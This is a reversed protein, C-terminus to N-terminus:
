KGDPEIRLSRLTLDDRVLIREGLFVPYAWTQRDSVQYEAVPEYAKGNPKVVVLRGRMTLFLLVSRANLTTAYGFGHQEDSQWLTKGSGADVCFFCGRGRTSSGFLLDGALVPTSMYPAPGQGKWVERPTIGKDGKELRVARPPDKYDAYIILDKYLLPTSNKESGELRVAWLKKGTAASVGVLAWSTLAVM